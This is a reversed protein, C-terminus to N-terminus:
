PLLRRKSQATLIIVTDAPPEELLKLLANQAEQTLGDAHELCIIRRITGKGTTKLQLFKQMTRVTEISVTGTEAPQLFLYYPYHELQHTGLLQGAIIQALTTKGIGDPGIVLLAHHPHKIFDGLYKATTDHIVVNM